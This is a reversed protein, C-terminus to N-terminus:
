AARSCGTARRSRRRCAAHVRQGLLVAQEDGVRRLVLAGVRLAAPVPEVRVVLLAVAALRRQDGADGALDHALVGDVRAADVDGPRDAPPAAAAIM